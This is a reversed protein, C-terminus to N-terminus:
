ILKSIMEQVIATLKTNKVRLLAGFIKLLYSRQDDKDKTARLQCYIENVLKSAKAYDSIGVTTRVDSRVGTPILSVCCDSVRLVDGEIANCLEPLYKEFLEM